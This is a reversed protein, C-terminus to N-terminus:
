EPLFISPLSQLFIHFKSMKASTIDFNRPIFKETNGRFISLSKSKEIEM